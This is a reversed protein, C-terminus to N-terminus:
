PAEGRASINRGKLAKDLTGKSYLSSRVDIIYQVVERGNM